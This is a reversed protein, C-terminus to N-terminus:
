ERDQSALRFRRSVGPSELRIDQLLDNRTRPENLIVETCGSEVDALSRGIPMSQRGEGRAPPRDAIASPSRVLWTVVQHEGPPANAECAHLASKNGCRVSAGMGAAAEAALQKEQEIGITATV